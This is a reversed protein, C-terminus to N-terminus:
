RQRGKLRLLELTARAGTTYDPLVLRSSSVTQTFARGDTLTSSTYPSAPHVVLSVDGRHLGVSRILRNEYAADWEQDTAIFCFSMSGDLSGSRLKEVLLVTDPDSPSLRAEFHLGKSDESLTLTQPAATTRALPLGSGAAGHQLVLKVDPGESLSRKFAGPVITETFSDGVVYPVGTRSAWGSLTLMGGTENMDPSFAVASRRETNHNTM